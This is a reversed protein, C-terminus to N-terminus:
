AVMIGGIDLGRSEFCLEGVGSIDIGCGEGGGFFFLFSQCFRKTLAGSNARGLSKSSSDSASPWTRIGPNGDWPFMPVHLVM